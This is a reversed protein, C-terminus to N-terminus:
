GRATARPVEGAELLRKFRRLDERITQSPESGFLSAVAAGVRGAPLAYQLHVSIQTGRGGRVADFNVSGATVVDSGPLSRWGVVQNEVENIIEADWEVALGAPGRAIWHSRRDSTETVRELHSMFRPLNELRRWLRYLDTVPRELRVSERVHIGRTGALATKTDDSALYRDLVAPWHGAIGRYLLPASSIALCAGFASRQRTGALLLAAGAGLTLWQEANKISTRNVLSADM